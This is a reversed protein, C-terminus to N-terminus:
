VSCITPLTLHTYSVASPLTFDCLEPRDAVNVLLGRAKLRRAMAEAETRDELAVFALRAADADGEGCCVGGAREVLGRKADAMEGDGVIAVREGAIRHFLPLSHM